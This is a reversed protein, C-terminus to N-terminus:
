APTSKGTATWAVAEVALQEVMWTFHGQRPWTVMTANPIREALWRGASDPVTEDATGHWLRVSVDLHEPDFGWPQRYLGAEQGAARGGRVLSDRVLETFWARASPTSLVLQDLACMSGISREVFKAPQEKKFALAALEFQMRRLLSNASPGTILSAESMGAAQMPAVGAVIGVRHVRDALSDACALAYPSGGSVGMVAFRGIALRDALEAVDRPADTFRRSPQFTSRGFGPRDIAVVRARVAYRALTPELIGLEGSNSPFGHCYIVVPADPPGMERYGLDRGDALRVIGESM